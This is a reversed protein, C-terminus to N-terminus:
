ATLKARAPGVTPGTTSCCVWASIPPWVIVVVLVGRASAQEFHLVGVRTPYVLVLLAPDSVRRTRTQGDHPRLAWLTSRNEHFNCRHLYRAKCRV